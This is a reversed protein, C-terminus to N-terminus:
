VGGSEKVKEEWENAMSLVNKEMVLVM